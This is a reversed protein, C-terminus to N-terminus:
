QTESGHEAPEDPLVPQENLPSPRTTGDFLFTLLPIRTILRWALFSLITTLVAVAFAKLFTPMPLDQALWVLVCIVPLHFLYIVYSASTLTDIATMPRDLLTRAGAIVVQTLTVAAITTVLRGAAPHLAGIITLSLFTFLLALAAIPLSFRGIRALTVPARQLLCGLAFYPTYIILEDLRLIQQPFNTALGAIYFAEVAGAEWLGVLLAALCLVVTLHRACAEDLRQPVRASALRPVAAVLAAFASCLYLLVIIFWLHRVWYGGSQSSNWVFSSLAQSYPLNSFECALNMIPVLTVITTLFPVGLRIFRGKLWTGPARRALLLAAFYGAIVFFAPMRFLHIFETLEVAGVFGEDSRVIWQEGPRYSLAVHYPIGLLMLLARLSDWYHERRNASTGAM